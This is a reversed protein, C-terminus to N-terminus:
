RGIKVVKSDGKNITYSISGSISGQTGYSTYSVVYNGPECDYWVGSDPERPTGPNNDSIYTNENYQYKVRTENESNLPNSCSFVILILILFIWLIGKKM